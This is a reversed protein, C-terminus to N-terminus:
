RTDQDSTQLPRRAEDATRPRGTPSHLPQTDTESAGAPWQGAKAPM